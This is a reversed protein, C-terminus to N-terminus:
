AFLFDLPFKVGVAERRRGVWCGPDAGLAAIRMLRTPQRAWVSYVSHSAGAHMESCPTILRQVPDRGSALGALCPSLQALGAYGTNNSRVSGGRTRVWMVYEWRRGSRAKASATRCSSLEARM